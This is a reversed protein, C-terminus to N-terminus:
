NNIPRRSHNQPTYYSGYLKEQQDKLYLTASDNRCFPLSINNAIKNNGLFYDCHDFSDCHKCNGLQNEIDSSSQNFLYYQLDIGRRTLMKGLRSHKVLKRLRDRYCHSSFLGRLPSLSKYLAPAILSSGMGLLIILDIHQM